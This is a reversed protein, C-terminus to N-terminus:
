GLLSGVKTTSLFQTRFAIRTLTRFDERKANQTIRKGTKLSHLSFRNKLNGGIYCLGYKIHRVLTGKKLGLSITGGYRRRVGGKEPELRHLQRRHWRLPVVYYLSRTTPYKAGTAMAALCWSDVCHSEFVTKSKSRIKKLGLSDRFAKTENGSRVEVDLGVARLSSYFYQKGTEIPSFNSNWRGYGKKTAAKIDEVVVCSIPLMRKLQTIVRLKADWRAKTSPPIRGEPHRNDGRCARRRTKRYRRLRRMQRRQELAKKVWDVAELMMNLVTDKSGVVSVAEYKSGPDVGVALMQNKPEVAYKLHLYFIGLKCWRAVAKGKKLLLRARAPTCPMLPMGRADVVPVRLRNPGGPRFGPNSKGEGFGVSSLRLPTPNLPEGASPLALSTGQRAELGTPTTGSPSLSTLEKTPVVM